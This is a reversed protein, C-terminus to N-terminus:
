LRIMLLYIRFRVLIGNALECSLTRYLSCSLSLPHLLALSLSLSPAISRPLFLSPLISRALFVSLPEHSLYRSLSLSAQRCRKKVTRILGTSTASRTESKQCFDPWRNRLKRSFDSAECEQIYIYRVKEWDHKQPWDPHTM